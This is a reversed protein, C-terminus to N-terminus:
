DTTVVPEGEGGGPHEATFKTIATDCDSDFQEMIKKFKRRYKNEAIDYSKAHDAKTAERRAAFRARTSRQEVELTTVKGGEKTGMESLYSQYDRELEEKEEKEITKWTTKLAKDADDYADFLTKNMSNLSNLLRRQNGGMDALFVALSQDIAKRSIM